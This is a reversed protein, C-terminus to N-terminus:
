GTRFVGENLLSLYGLIKKSGFVGITPTFGRIKRPETKPPLIPFLKGISQSSM